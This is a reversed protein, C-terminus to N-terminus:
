SHSKENLSVDGTPALHSVSYLGRVRVKAGMVECVLWTHWSVSFFSTSSRASCTFLLL